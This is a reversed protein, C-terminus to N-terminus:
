KAGADDGVDEADKGGIQVRVHKGGTPFFKAVPPAPVGTRKVLEDVSVVNKGWDVVSAMEEDDGSRPVPKGVALHKVPLFGDKGYTDGIAKWAGDQVERVREPTLEGEAGITVIMEGHDNKEFGFAAGKGFDKRLRDRFAISDQTIKYIAVIKDGFVLYGIGCCLVGLGALIGIVLLFIKGPTWKSGETM